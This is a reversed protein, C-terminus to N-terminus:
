QSSTKSGSHRSRSRYQDMTRGGMILRARYQNHERCLLTLNSAENGGGRAVPVIHDIEVMRMAGCRSGDPMLQQCRGEARRFVARKIPEPIKRRAAAQDQTQSQPIQSGHSLLSQEDGPSNRAQATEVLVQHSAAIPNEDWQRLATSAEADNMDVISPDERVEVVREADKAAMKTARRLQDRQALLKDVAIMIAEATTPVHGRASLVETLRHILAEQAATVTIQLTIMEDSQQKVTGDPQVRRLFGEVDRRGKDLINDWIVRENAETMKDGILALHSLCTKGDRLHELAQPFRSALKAVRLRKFYQDPTLGIKQAVHEHKGGMYLEARWYALRAIVRLSDILVCREESHIKRAETVLERLKETLTQHFM